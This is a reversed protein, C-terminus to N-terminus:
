QPRLEPFSRVWMRSPGHLRTLSRRARARHRVSSTDFPGHLLTALGEAVIAHDDALLVTTRRM